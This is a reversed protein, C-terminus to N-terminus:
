SVMRKRKEYIILYVILIIIGICTVYAGTASYPAKYYLSIENIGSETKFALCGINARIFESKNGNIKLTWGEKEYPVSVYVIEEKCSTFQATFGHSNIQFNQIPKRDANLESDNSYPKLIDSVFHADKDEVVLSNLLIDAGNKEEAYLKKFESRTLYNDYSFGMGIFNDNKYIDVGCDTKIYTFDEPIPLNDKESVDYYYKVGLLTRTSNDTTDVFVSSKGVNMGIYKGMTDAYSNRVSEFITISPKHMSYAYNRWQKSSEIRHAESDDNVPKEFLYKEVQENLDVKSKPYYDLLHSDTLNFSTYFCGYIVILLSLVPIINKRIIKFYTIGFLVAYGVFSSVLTFVRFFDEANQERAIGQFHYKVFQYPALAKIIYYLVIMVTLLVVTFAVSIRAPRSKYNELFMLTALIFFLIIGYSYRTYTSSFLNFAFALAPVLLCLVGAICLVNLWTKSEKSSMYAIVFSIGFIPIYAARSSWPSYGFSSFRNSAAPVFLSFLRSIFGEDYFCQSLKITRGIRSSSGSSNFTKHFFAAFMFFVCLFGLLYEFVALFFYKAKRKEKWEDSLFFRCLFYISFLITSFVFFYSSIMCSFAVAAILQHKYNRDRFMKEASLLLFPFTWLSDIFQMFELNIFTYSSFTYLIAGLFATKEEKVMYKFYAFSSVAVILIRIMHLYTVAYPILNSPFLLCIANLSLLTSAKNYPMGLFNFWDWTGSGSTLIEKAKILRLLYQDVYDGRIIFIGKNMIISPLMILLMMLASLIGVSVYNYKKHVKM